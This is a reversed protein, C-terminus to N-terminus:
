LPQYKVSALKALVDEESWTEGHRAARPMEVERISREIFTRADAESEHFAFHMWREGAIAKPRLVAYLAEGPKLTWAISQDELRTIPRVEVELITTTGKMIQVYYKIM